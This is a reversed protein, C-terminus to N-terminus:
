SKAIYIFLKKVIKKRFVSKFNIHYKHKGCYNLPLIPRKWRKSIPEIGMQPM